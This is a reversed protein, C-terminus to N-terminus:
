AVEGNLFRELQPRPVKWSSAVRFARVGPVLEKNKRALDYATRRAIGLLQAAEILPMTKAAVRKM